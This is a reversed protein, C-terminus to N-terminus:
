RLVGRDVLLLDESWDDDTSASNSCVRLYLYGKAGPLPEFDTGEIGVVRPDEGLGPIQKLLAQRDALQVRGDEFDEWVGSSDVTFTRDLDDGFSLHVTNVRQYGSLDFAPLKKSHENWLDTKLDQWYNADRLPFHEVVEADSKRVKELRLTRRYSYYSAPNESITVYRFYYEANEGILTERRWTAANPTAGAMAAMLVSAFAIAIRVARMM